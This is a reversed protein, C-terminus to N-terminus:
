LRLNKMSNPYLISKNASTAPEVYVTSHQAARAYTIVDSLLVCIFIQQYRVVHFMYMMYRLQTLHLSIYKKGLYVIDVHYTGTTQLKFEGDVCSYQEDSCMAECISPLHEAFPRVHEEHSSRANQDLCGGGRATSLRQGSLLWCIPILAIKVSPFPAVFYSGGPISCLTSPNLMATALTLTPPLTSGTGESVGEGIGEGVACGLTKPRTNGVFNCHRSLELYSSL